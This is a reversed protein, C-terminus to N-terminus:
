MGMLALFGSNGVAPTSVWKNFLYTETSQIQGLTLASSYILVECLAGSLFTSAIGGGLSIENLANLGIGGGLSINNQDVRFTSSSSNYLGTLLHTGITPTGGGFVNGAYMAYASSRNMDLFQRSASGDFMRGSGALSAMHGVAFITDEQPVNPGSSCLMFDSSGNFWVAPLGNVLFSGSTKYYTPQDAGTAQAATFGNGSEDPWSSLSAGDSVGTIQSADYWATYGTVPPTAM